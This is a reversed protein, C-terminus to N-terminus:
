QDGVRDGSLCEGSRCLVAAAGLAAWPRWSWPSQRVSRRLYTLARRDRRDLLCKGIFYNSGTGRGRGKPQPEGSIREAEDLQAAESAGATRAARCRKAVELLRLQQDRRQASVSSETVRLGFLVEPVYSLMGVEALRLWLDWDQAYRFQARYGGVHHYAAARFMVSGHCPGISQEVLQRTAEGADVPRRSEFLVEDEPGIARSWCSVMALREDARLAALQRALRGPLSVDDADQRAIFEGRAEKCARMLSKTLGQNEQTFLRVRPDRCSYEHVMHVSEDTSGDDVVVLELEVGQRNVISDIAARLYEQGNYVSMAVSVEPCGM